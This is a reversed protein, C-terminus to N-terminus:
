KGQLRIQSKERVVIEATGRYSAITGTVCIHKNAYVVEPSGFKPRDQRWILATFIQAPYPKDLNLFTPGGRSGAAYHASAVLGCVTAEEGIHQNAESAALTKTTQGLALTSLCLVLLILRPAPRKLM